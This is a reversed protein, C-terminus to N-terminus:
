LYFLHLAIPDFIGQLGAEAHGVNILEYLINLDAEPFSEKTKQILGVMSGSSNTDYLFKLCKMQLKQCTDEFMSKYNQAISATFIMNERTIALTDLAVTTKLKLGLIQYREALEHLEMLTQPCIIADLTFTDEGPSRYIYRIMTAFAEASTNKVEVVDGREKMPGFFQGRFVPSSGALLLKHARISKRCQCTDVGHTEDVERVLFSVDPPINSDPLLFNHWDTDVIAM